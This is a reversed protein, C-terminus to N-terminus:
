ELAGGTIGEPNLRSFAAEAGPRIAFGVKLTLQTLLASVTFINESEVQLVSGPDTTAM